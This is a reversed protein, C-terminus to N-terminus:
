DLRATRLTETAERMRGAVIWLSHSLDAKAQAELTKLSEVKGSVDAGQELDRFVAVLEPSPPQALQQYVLGWDNSAESSLRERQEVEPSLEAFQRLGEVDELAKLAAARDIKEAASRAREIAALTNACRTTRFSTEVDSYLWPMLNKRTNLLVNNVVRAQAASTASNQLSEVKAAESRFENVASRANDFSVGAVNSADANLAAEAWSAVETLRIPVNQVESMRLVSLTSVKLETLLNKYDEPRYLDLQTHSYKWFPDPEAKPDWNWDRELMRSNWVLLSTGGGGVAGFNWADTGIDQGKIVSIRDSLGLDSIVAKQAEAIEPSTLMKGKTATWGSLDFNRDYVLRQMVEPHAQVFAWSGALWDRESDVMGGEEGATALFMVNRKPKYSGSLARAIELMTAVGAENDNASHWWRDYHASVMVWEDPSEIGKLVGIVNHSTGDSSDIRNELEISVQGNQLQRQLELGNKKSVLVTPIQDRNSAGGQALADEPGEWDDFLVLAAARHYAAELIQTGGFARKVLVAKGHVDGVKSYDPESGSGVEVLSTRLVHGSEANGRAYPIGDKTGWTGGGTAVSIAEIPKGNVRLIVKGYEYHRVPFPETHVNLGITKMEQEVFDAIKKEDATGAIASGAGAGSDNNVIGTSLHQIEKSTRAADLKSLIRNEEPTLQTASQATSPFPVGVIFALLALFALSHKRTPESRM